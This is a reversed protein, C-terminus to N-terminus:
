LAGFLYSATYREREETKEDYGEVLLSIACTSRKSRNAISHKVGM